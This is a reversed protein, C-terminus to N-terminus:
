VWGQIHTNKKNKKTKWFTKLCGLFGELFGVICFFLGYVVCSFRRSFLCVVFLVFGYGLTPRFGTFVKHTQNARLIQQNDKTKKQIKPKRSPTKPKRFVKPFVLLCSFVFGYGLTPRFGKCVKNNKKNEM